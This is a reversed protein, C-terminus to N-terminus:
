KLFWIRYKESILQRWLDISLMILLDKFSSVESSIEDYAAYEGIKVFKTRQESSKKTLILRHMNSTRWDDRCGSIPRQTSVIETESFM